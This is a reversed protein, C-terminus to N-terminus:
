IVEATDDVLTKSEVEISYRAITHQKGTKCSIPTKDFFCLIIVRLNEIMLVIQGMQMQLAMYHLPLVVLLIYTM